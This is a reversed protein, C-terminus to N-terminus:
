LVQSILVVVLALVVVGALACLMILTKKDIKKKGGNAPAQMNQMPQGQAAAPDNFAVNPVQGMQPQGAAMEPTAPQESPMSIASGISGPVPGAAKMPAKLEEEIPDPAKPPNPMTIPDTAGVMTNNPQFVPSVPTPFEPMAPATGTPNIVPNVPAASIAPEVPAVPTAPAVPEASMVPATPVTPTTPMAPEASMSPAAPTVPAVPVGPVAPAAAAAPNFNQNTNNPDM